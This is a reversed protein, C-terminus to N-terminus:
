EPAEAYRACLKAELQRVADGTDRAEFSSSVETMIEEWHASVAEFDALTAHLTHGEPVALAECPEVAVDEIFAFVKGEHTLSVVLADLELGPDDDDLLGGSLMADRVSVLEPVARVVFTGLNCEFRATVSAYGNWPEGPSTTLSCDDVGDLVRLTMDFPFPSCMNAVDGCRPICSLWLQGDVSFLDRGPQEVRTFGSSSVRLTGFNAHFHDAFRVKWVQGETCAAAQAALCPETCARAGPKSRVPEGALPGTCTPTTVLPATGSGGGGCATIGVLIIPTVLIRPM